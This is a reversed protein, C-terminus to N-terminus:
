LPAYCQTSYIPRVRWRYFLKFKDKIHGVGSCERVSSWGGNFDRSVSFPFICDFQEIIDDPTLPDKDRVEVRANVMKPLVHGSQGVQCIIHVIGNNGETFDAVNKDTQGTVYSYHSTNQRSPGPFKATPSIIDIYAYIHPDCKSLHDCPYGGRTLGDPNEFRTFNVEIKYFNGIRDAADTFPSFLSLSSLFM